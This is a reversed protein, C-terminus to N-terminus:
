GLGRALCSGSRWWSPSDQLWLSRTLLPGSYWPAPTRGHCSAWSVSVRRRSSLTLYSTCHDMPRTCLRPRTPSTCTLLTSMLTFIYIGVHKVREYIEDTVFEMSAERLIWKQVFKGDAEEHDRRWKVKLSPPVGSVYETLHHDLFPTRGEISHAMETRDGLCSMFQNPLHGKTWVYQATNIPHWSHQMKKLVKPNVDAAITDQADLPDLSSIWKAFVNPQFAAMAAPTTINNLQHQIEKSVEFSAGISKYYEATESESTEFLRVRDKDPMANPWSLDPERLFDPLYVGYGTMTEDAGEGTLVVKFGHEQPLESLAFKGIYNLDANHHECHWTADEFRSALESENM